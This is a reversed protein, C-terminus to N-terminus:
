HKAEFEALNLIYDRMTESMKTSPYIVEGTRSIHINFNLKSLASRVQEFQSVTCELGLNMRSLLQFGYATVWLPRIDVSDEGEEVKLVIEEVEQPRNELIRPIRLVLEPSSNKRIKNMVAGVTTGGADLQRCFQEILVNKIESPNEEHLISEFTDTDIDLYGLWGVGVTESLCRVLHLIKWEPEHERVIPYLTRIAALNRIPVPVDYKRIFAEPKESYMTHFTFKAVEDTTSKSFFTICLDERKGKRAWVMELNPCALLQTIDVTDLFTWSFAIRELQSCTSLPYLDVNRLPNWSIDLDRLRRCSSLPTLDIKGLQNRSLNLRELQTCSSLPSLDIEELRNQFITLEKLEPCASLPGLDIYKMKNQHFHLVKLQPSFIVPSLDISKMHFVSRLLGRDTSLTAERRTGDLAEYEFTLEDMPNGRIIHIDTM